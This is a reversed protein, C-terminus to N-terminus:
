IVVDSLVIKSPLQQSINNLLDNAHYQYITSYIARIYEFISEKLLYQRETLPKIMLYMAEPKIGHQIPPLFYNVDELIKVGMKMYFRIRNKRVNMEREELNPIDERQIEMVLGTGNPIDSAFREFTGVFIERGLGQGQYDPKVAMYDLLGFGLSRFVYMLSIGAVSNDKLCIFLQYNKDRKLLDVIKQTPRTENPPFSSKYIELSCDFEASNFDTLKVISM